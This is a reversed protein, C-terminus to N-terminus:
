SDKSFGDFKCQVVISGTGIGLIFGLTSDNKHHSVIHDVYENQDMTSAKEIDENSLIQYLGYKIDEAYAQGDWKM